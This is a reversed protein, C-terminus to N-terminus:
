LTPSSLSAEFGQVKRVEGIQTKIEANFVLIMTIFNQLVMKV